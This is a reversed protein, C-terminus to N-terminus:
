KRWKYKRNELIKVDNDVFLVAQRQYMRWGGWGLPTLQLCVQCETCWIFVVSSSRSFSFYSSLSLLFRPTWSVFFWCCSILSILPLNLPLFSRSLNGPVNAILKNYFRIAIRYFALSIQFMRVSVCHTWSLTVITKYFTRLDKTGKRNVM